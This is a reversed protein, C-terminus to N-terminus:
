KGEEGWALTVSKLAERLDTKLKEVEKRIAPVTTERLTVLRAHNEALKNQFDTGHQTGKTAEINKRLEGQQKELNSEETALTQYEAEKSEIQKQVAIAKELGAVQKASAHNRDVIERRFWDMSSFEIQGKEIHTETIKLDAEARSGVRVRYRKGTTTEEEPTTPSDITATAYSLLRDHDIVVECADAKVSRVRYVVNVRHAKETYIVGKSIKVSTFDVSARGGERTIHVGTDQGHLLRRNEGGKTTPMIATGQFLDVGQGDRLYVNCPGKNLSHPLSNTFRLCMEPRGSRSEDKNTNYYLEERCDKLDTAIVDITASSNPPITQKLPRGEYDRGTLITFDGMEVATGGATEAVDGPSFDTTTGELESDNAYSGVACYNVDGSLSEAGGAMAPALGRAASKMASRGRSAVSGGAAHNTIINIRNRTPVKPEALDTIEVTYPIGTACRIVADSWAQDTNNHVICAGTLRWVDGSKRIQYQMAWAAVPITMGIMARAKDDTSRLKMQLLSSEPRIDAFAADLAREIQDQIDKDTFVYQAVNSLPIAKIIGGAEAISVYQREIKKDGAVEERTDLGLLRGETNTKDTSCIRLKSGRLKTFLAALPNDAEIKFAAANASKPKFRPPQVIQIRDKATAGFFTMNIGDALHSAKVPISIDTGEKTVDYGIRLDAMGNGYLTVMNEM